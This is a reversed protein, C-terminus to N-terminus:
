LNFTPTGIHVPRRTKRPAPSAPTDDNYETLLAEHLGPLTALDMLIYVATQHDNAETEDGDWVTWTVNSVKWAVEENPNDILYGYDRPNTMEYSMCEALMEASERAAPNYAIEQRLIDLFQPYDEQMIQLATPTTM